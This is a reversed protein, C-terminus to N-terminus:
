PAAAHCPQPLSRNLTAGLFCSPDAHARSCWSKGAPEAAHVGSKPEHDAGVNYPFAIDANHIGNKKIHSNPMAASVVSNFVFVDRRLLLETGVVHYLYVCNRM